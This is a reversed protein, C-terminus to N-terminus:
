RKILEPNSHISGIVEIEEQSIFVRSLRHHVTKLKMYFAGDSFVVQYVMGFGKLLDGEYIDVGNKDVLGTFQMVIHKKLDLSNFVVDGFNLVQNFSFPKSMVKLKPCFARFKIERNM